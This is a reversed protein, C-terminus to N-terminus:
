GKEIWSEGKARQIGRCWTRVKLEVRKLETDGEGIEDGERRSGKRYRGEGEEVRATIDPEGKGKGEEAMDNREAGM